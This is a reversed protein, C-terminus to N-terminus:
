GLSRKDSELKLNEKTFDVKEKELFMELKILLM